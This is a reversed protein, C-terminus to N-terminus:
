SYPKCNERWSIEIANELLAPKVCILETNIDMQIGKIESNGAPSWVIEPIVVGVM